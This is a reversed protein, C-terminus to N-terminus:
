IFEYNRRKEKLIFAKVYFTLIRRFDKKYKRIYKSV